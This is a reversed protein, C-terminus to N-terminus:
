AEQQYQRAFEKAFDEIKRKGLVPKHLLYDEWLIANRIADGMETYLKSITEPLGSQIMGQLSQENTFEIWPLDPKGIAKGLTAAIEGTTHEDSIVYRVSKGTFPKVLEEAAADAIDLPNVMVLLANSDYNSGIIGAQKIMGINHYFNTHFFGARLSIIAVSELKNLIHETDHLGAIPGTGNPLHAGISSLNVVRKVGSGQIATAYSQAIRQYYARYDTVVFNPPVMTYVADAGTFATTLFATDEISGIAPIAGIAEIDAAKEKKSSIVTVQHGQKILIESLPRSINGLSGTITFKM